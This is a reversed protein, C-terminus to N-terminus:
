MCVAVTCYRSICMAVTYLKISPRQLSSVTPRLSHYPCPYCLVSFTPPSASPQRRCHFSVAWFLIPNSVVKACVNEIRILTVFLAGATSPCPSRFYVAVTSRWKADTPSKTDLCRFQTQRKGCDQHFDFYPDVLIHTQVATWDAQTAFFKANCM